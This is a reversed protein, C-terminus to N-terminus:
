AFHEAILKEADKSLTQGEETTLLQGAFFKDYWRKKKEWRRRYKPQELLGLHEWYLNEGRWTITFDPLYFTGDPAHLPVEYRFPIGRDHLMNAIIVESKSRVMFKALTEHIRGEEYWDGLTRLADPVPNFAFVSSNVSLLHSKEPRSLSILPGVDQEVFVTCHRRARTLGTYLLERCLLAAKSKPLVFYVRDFESGQAKHVSIAYALEINEEAKEEPLPRGDPKQGLKKGYGVALDVKRAFRVQFREFGKMWKNNGDFAHPMSFGIEGNFLEVQENRRNAFSYAWIPNSKPRNRFQIVKDFVAINGLHKGHEIQRGRAHEQLIVNLRETGFEEGRYPSMIQQYEPREYDGFAAKWLLYPRSEDFDQGTDRQMDATVTAVLKRALDDPDDWYIIRLDEAVDGGEHCRRLVEEAELEAAEDKQESRSAGIYITALDLIGTGKGTLRNEMQRINTELIGISEPSHSRLWAIVDSFVKGRGIPPLQNPDGVLILRQVSGWHIARFLAAALHLDMMSSEDIIFTATDDEQRGGERKFTLNDNLWGRKALFSHVTAVPVEEALERLGDRIRDAAKGTPALLQINSRGGHGKQIARITAKIVTTKGTGAAGSLVSLPRPFVKECVSVQEAIAEEYDGPHERALPSDADYLFDHWHSSTVPSRLRVDPAGCLGRLVKEIEREDEFVSRLYLYRTGSERRIALAPELNEADVDLHKERFETRKWEPMAELMANIAGLVESARLFSHRTERKLLDVCIARLRRWDDRDALAEGCLEPSPFVARDIRYFSITDDPGDGVFQETLIYPNDAVETLPAAIGYSERKESVIRRMQEVTIDVRPLIDRLIAQEDDEHLRWRRAVSQQQRQPVDLGPIPKAQGELYAFIAKKADVEEGQAVRSKFYAIAEQFNLLDLVKPLGPYLGRSQWLESVLSSLWGRRMQWDESTDGLEILVDVVEALREVVSLADDDSFQRTAYKFLRPNDPVFLLRELVEPRDRYLHYPIRFGQDSYDSTINRDWVNPGYRQEMAESQNDWCLEDGVAKVRSIGVVVYRRADEESFPNSYNAYYVILSRNPEIAAFYENAAARRKVADYIPKGGPNKVEDKYMEEYPWACVTSPPLEWERVETSDRFWDPPPAFAKLTENGFANISYICPPIGDLSACPKGANKKEWALNRREAIMEGPYSHQGVCYTNAVPNRCICGNWGDAHWAIRASIHVTM